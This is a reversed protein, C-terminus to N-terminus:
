LDHRVILFLLGFAFPISIQFSYFVTFCVKLNFQDSFNSIRLQADDDMPESAKKSPKVSWSVPRGM